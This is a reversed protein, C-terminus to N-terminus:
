GPSWGPWTPRSPPRPAARRRRRHRRRRGPGPGRDFRNIRAGPSRRRLERLARRRRRRAGGPGPRHGSPDQRHRGRRRRARRPPRGARAPAGVHCCCTSTRPAVSSPRNAVSTDIADPLGLDVAAAAGAPRSPSTGAAPPEVAARGPLDPDVVVFVQEGRALDRLEDFGLDVPHGRDSPRPRRSRRLRRVARGTRGRAVTRLRSARNVTRGFYDGDRVEAEGTHIAMRVSVELDALARQRTSPRPSPTPPAPSSASRPTARAGRSSCGARTTSSRSESSRTM